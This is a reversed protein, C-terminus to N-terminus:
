IFGELPILCFGDMLICFETSYLWKGQDIKEEFHLTKTLGCAVFVFLVITIIMVLLIYRRKM